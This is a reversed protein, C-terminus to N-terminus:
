CATLENLVGAFLVLTLLGCPKLFFAGLCVNNLLLHSSCCGTLTRSVSGFLRLLRLVTAGSRSSRAAAPLIGAKQLKQLRTQELVEQSVKEEEQKANEENNAPAWTVTKLPKHQAGSRKGQDWLGQPKLSLSPPLTLLSEASGVM